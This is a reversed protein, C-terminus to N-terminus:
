RPALSSESEPASSLRTPAANPATAQANSEAPILLSSTDVVVEAQKSATPISNCRNTPPVSHDCPATAEALKILHAEINVKVKVSSPESLWTDITEQEVGLAHLFRNAQAIGDSNGSSLLEFLSQGAHRAAIALLLPNNKVREETGILKAYDTMLWMNMGLSRKEKSGPLSKYREVSEVLAQQFGEGLQHKATRITSLFALVRAADEAKKKAAEEEKRQAVSIAPAEEGVPANGETILSALAKMAKSCASQVHPTQMLVYGGLVVAVSAASTVVPSTTLGRTIRPIFLSM